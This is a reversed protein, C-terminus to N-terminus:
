RAYRKGVLEAETKCAVCVDFGHGRRAAPMEADCNVCEAPGYGADGPQYKVPAPRSKNNREWEQLEIEQARDEASM